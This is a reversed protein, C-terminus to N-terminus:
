LIRYPARNARVDTTTVPSLYPIGKPDSTVRSPRSGPRAPGGGMHTGGSEACVIEPDHMRAIFPPCGKHLCDEIIGRDPDIFEAGDGSDVGTSSPASKRWTRGRNLPWSGKPTWRRLRGDGSSPYASRCGAAWQDGFPSARPCDDGADV